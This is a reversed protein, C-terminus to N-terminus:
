LYLRIIECFYYVNVVVQKGSAALVSNNTEKVFFLVLKILIYNIINCMVKM